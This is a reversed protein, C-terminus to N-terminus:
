TKPNEDISNLCELAYNLMAHKIALYLRPHTKKFDELDFKYMKAAGAEQLIKDMSEEGLRNVIHRSKRKDRVM